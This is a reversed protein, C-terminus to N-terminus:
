IIKLFIKLNLTKEVDNRKVRIPLIASYEGPGPFVSTNIKLSSIKKIGVAGGSRGGLIGYTPFGEGYGVTYFQYLVDSQSPIISVEFGKEEGYVVTDYRVCYDLAVVLEDVAVTDCAITEPVNITDVPEPISDVPIQCVVVPPEPIEPLLDKKCSFMTLTALGLIVAFMTKKM